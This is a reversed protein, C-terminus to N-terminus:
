SATEDKQSELWRDFCEEADRQSGGSVKCCAIVTMAAFAGACALLILWFEM